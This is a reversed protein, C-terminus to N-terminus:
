RVFPKSQWKQCHHCYLASKLISGGCHRCDRRPRDEIEYEEVPADRTVDIGCVGCAVAAKAGPAGQYAKLRANEVRVTLPEACYPCLTFAGDEDRYLKAV